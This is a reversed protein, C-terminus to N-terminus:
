GEATYIVVRKTVGGECGAKEMVEEDRCISSEDWENKVVVIGERVEDEDLKDESKLRDIM